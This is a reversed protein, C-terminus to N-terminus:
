YIDENSRFVLLVLRYASLFHSHCPRPKMDRVGYDKRHKVGGRKTRKGGRNGPTEKSDVSGDERERDKGGGRRNGGGPPGRTSKGASKKHGKKGSGAQTWEDIVKTQSETLAHKPLEEWEFIEVDLDDSTSQVSSRADHDLEPVTYMPDQKRPTQPASSVISSFSIPIAPLPDTRFLDPYATAGIKTPDM